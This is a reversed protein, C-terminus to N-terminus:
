NEDSKIKLAKLFKLDQASFIPVVAETRANGSSRTMKPGRSPRVQVYASLDLCIVVEYGAREIESAIQEFRGNAGIAENVIADLSKQARSRMIASRAANRLNETLEPNTEPSPTVADSRSPASILGENTRVRIKLRPVFSSFVNAGANQLDRKSSQVEPDRDIESKLAQLAEQFSSDCRLSDEAADEMKLLMQQIAQQDIM